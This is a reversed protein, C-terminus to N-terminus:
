LPPSDQTAADGTLRLRAAYKMDVGLIHDEIWTKLFHFLELPLMPPRDDADLALTFERVQEMFKLHEGQHFALLEPTVQGVVAEEASFHTAAHAKLGALVGRLRGTDEPTAAAAAMENLLEILRAHQADLEPVGVSFHDSWEVHRM